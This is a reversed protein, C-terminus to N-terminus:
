QVVQITIILTFIRSSHQKKYIGDLQLSSKLKAGTETFPQAFPITDILDAESTPVYCSILITFLIADM